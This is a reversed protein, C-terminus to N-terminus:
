RSMGILLESLRTVGEKLQATAKDTADATTANQVTIQNVLGIKQNVSDVQIAQENSSKTIAAVLETSQAVRDAIRNLADSTSHAIEVGERIQQNSSELLDATQQAAKASRTALSRVEEAVVAFGKGHTGARAAEVAANLALLNTQFAIGEITKIVDKTNKSTESILNMSAVMKTMRMQGSTAADAAEKTFSNADAANKVNQATKDHMESMNRIIDQLHSAQIQSSQALQAADQAISDVELATQGVVNEVELAAQIIKERASVDQCIENLGVVKNRSDVIEECFIEWTTNAFFELTEHKAAREKNTLLRRKLGVGKEWVSEWSQRELHERKEKLLKEANRNVFTIKHNMDVVTIPSPAQDLIQTYWHDRAQIAQYVSRSFWTGFLIAVILVGLGTVVAIWTSHRALESLRSTLENGRDSYKSQISRLESDIKVLSQQTYNTINVSEELVKRKEVVMLVTWDVDSQGIQIPVHIKLTENGNIPFLKEDPKADYYIGGEGKTIRGVFARLSEPATNTDSGFVTKYAKLTNAKEELVGEYNKKLRDIDEQGQKKVVAENYLQKKETIRKELSDPDLVAILNLLELESKPAGAVLGEPSLFLAYGTELPALHEFLRSITALKIDIGVMGVIKNGVSIPSCFGVVLTGEDNLPTDVYEKGTTYPVTFYNGSFDVCYDQLIKGEEGRHFWPSYQGTVGSTPTNVFESDNNDLQNPGFVCYIAQFNPNAALVDLLISDLLKRSPELENALCSTKYAGITKAVTRGTAISSEFMTKIQNGIDAGLMKANEEELHATLDGAKKSFNRYDLQISDDLKTDDVQRLERMEGVRQESYSAMKNTNYTLITTLLCVTGISLVTIGLFLKRGVSM